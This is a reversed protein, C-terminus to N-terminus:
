AVRLTNSKRCGQLSFYKTLTWQSENVVTRGRVQGLQRFRFLSVELEIKM